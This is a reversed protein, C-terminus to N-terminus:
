IGKFALDKTVEEELIVENELENIYEQLEMIETEKGLIVDSKSFLGEKKLEAKYKACQERDHQLKNKIQQIVDNQM